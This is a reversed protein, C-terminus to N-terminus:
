VVCFRVVLTVQFEELVEAAVILETPTAVPTAFPEVVIVAECPPMMEVPAVSVTAGATNTDIETTGPVAEM